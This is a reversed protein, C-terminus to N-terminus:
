PAELGALAERLYAADEALRRRVQEPEDVGSYEGHLSLFGDYGATELERVAVRWDVFGENLLCWDTNWVTTNRERSPLRRANKVAVMALWPRVIDLGVPLPEGGLSLHAPDVYAGIFEADCGEILDMLSSCNSGLNGGSHTHVLARVGFERALAEFGQLDERVSKVTLWYPRERAWRWYGLKINRIGQDACARWIQRATPDHASTLRTETTVLGVLLGEAEFAEVAKPLTRRVNEPSVWHGERVALDFGAAGLELAVESLEAPSWDRFAKTFLVTRV